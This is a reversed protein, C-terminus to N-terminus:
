SEGKMDAGSIIDPAVLLVFLPVVVINCLVGMTSYMLKDM